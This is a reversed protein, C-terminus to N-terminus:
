TFIGPFNKGWGSERCTIRHHSKRGTKEPFPHQNDFVPHRKKIEPQVPHHGASGNVVLAIALFLNECYFFEEVAMKGMM